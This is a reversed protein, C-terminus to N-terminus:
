VPIADGRYALVIQAEPVGRAQLADIQDAVDVTLMEVLAISAFIAFPVAAASLLHMVPFSRDVYSTVSGYVALAAIALNATTLLFNTLEGARRDRRLRQTDNDHGKRKMM